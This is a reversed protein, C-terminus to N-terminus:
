SPRGPRITHSGHRGAPLTAPSHGLRLWQVGAICAPIALCALGVSPMPWHLDDLLWVLGMYTATLAPAVL